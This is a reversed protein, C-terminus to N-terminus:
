PDAHKRTERLPRAGYGAAPVETTRFSIVDGEEVDQSEQAAASPKQSTNSQAFVKTRSDVSFAILSFATALCLAAAPLRGANREGRKM